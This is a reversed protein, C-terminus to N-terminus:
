SMIKKGRIRSMTEITMGLYSAIYKLPIRNALEGKTKLFHEYRKGANPIRCIYAREEADRYYQELLKRGVINMELYHEYLYQLASHDIGVLDCDEVAQMNELSPQQLDFGRISTVIENETTIWTTIDKKGEKIYARIVGKRIFYLHQCVEGAKLLFDNREVEKVFSHQNIYNIAEESVPYIKKVFCALTSEGGDKECLRISSKKM